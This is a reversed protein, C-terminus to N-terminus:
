RSWYVDLTVEDQFLFARIPMAEIAAADGAESATRYVQWKAEGGLSLVLYHSNLLAPLSYTMRPYPAHKPNVALTRLGSQRNLGLPLEDAGPFLSATHGDDGMGLVVVDFPEPIEALQRSCDAAGAEPTPASNKMGIFRAAAARGQLLYQRVLAENSDAHDPAVWREDVLAIWVRDWPLDRSSLAKFLEIPSRGGSVLLSAAGRTSVAQQLRDAINDALAQTLSTKEQYLYENGKGVARRRIETM